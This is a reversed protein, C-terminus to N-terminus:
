VKKISNFNSIIIEELTKKVTENALARKPILSFLQPAQIMYYFDKNEWVEKYVDWKTESDISTTKFHINNLTFTLTYEDQLKAQIKFNRIPIYFYLLSGILLAFFTIVSLLISLTNFSSVYLNVLSLPFFLLVIIINPKSLIKSAILYQRYAKTYEGQSYKFILEVGEM